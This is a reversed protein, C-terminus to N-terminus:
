FNYELFTRLLSLRFTADGIEINLLLQASTLQNRFDLAATTDTDAVLQLNGQIQDLENQLSKLRNSQVVMSDAAQKRVIDANRVVDGEQVAKWEAYAAAAQNLHKDIAQSSLNYSVTIAGYPAPSDLLPNVQQHAGVSLSVDWNSQGNLRALANQENVEGAQKKAVLQKLPEAAPDPTYLAAIKAETDALDAALRIKTTQLSFLMPRTLSQAEVMKSTGAILVDLRSSAQQILEVRHELAKKEMGPLAYQIAQQASKTASYLECDKHAADMTLRAKRVNSLSSSLGWVLQTPLGTEPQTVGATADPTLLLDRRATAQETAYECYAQSDSQSQAFAGASALLVVASMVMKKVRM